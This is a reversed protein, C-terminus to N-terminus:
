LLPLYQYPYTVIKALFLPCFVSHLCHIAFICTLPARCGLFQYKVQHVANVPTRRMMKMAMKVYALTTQQSHQCKHLLFASTNVDEMTQDVTIKVQLLLVDMEEIKHSFCEVQLCGCHSAFFNNVPVQCCLSSLVQEMRM